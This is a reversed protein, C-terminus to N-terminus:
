PSKSEQKRWTKSEHVITLYARFTLISEFYRGVNPVVRPM